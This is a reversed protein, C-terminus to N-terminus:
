EDVGFMEFGGRALYCPMYYVSAINYQYTKKTEDTDFSELPQLCHHEKADDNRKTSYQWGNLYHFASWRNHESRAVRDLLTNDFSTPFYTTKYNNLQEEIKKSSKLIKHFKRKNEELLENFDKDSKERKLGFALLKIDIHLAQTKNADQQHPTIELWNNYLTETLVDSEGKYDNDILKAILDLEEDFLIERTSTKAINGFTYFHAFAKKNKDIEEGLGLNHYLAFLVKTKFRNHGIERIYTTNQLNIAIDLNKEEDTTAILINTLNKSKWIEDEYFELSESSVEKAEINLHPIMEIKPFIKRIKADTGYVRATLPSSILFM